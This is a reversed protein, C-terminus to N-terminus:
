WEINSAPLSHRDTFIFATSLKSIALSQQVSGVRYLIVHTGVGLGIQGM